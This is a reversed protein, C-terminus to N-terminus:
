GQIKLVDNIKDATERSKDNLPILEIDSASKVGIGLEAARKIQELEFIKRNMIDKTSGYSRLIAVGAADIAIRDGSALLLNPEVIDGLEPGKNVFAKIADMVVLHCDYFKNIESIMRRQYPSGHLEWMYDYLGGPIKKAVLGVSSKLSMTFHGGFRHTKLCCTQVVKDSKLVEKSIYFGRLWHTGDRDIKTWGEKDAEDLVLVKFGQKESLDFVGMQELVKRTDGMGSREVLTLNM